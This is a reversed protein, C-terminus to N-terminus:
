GSGAAPAAGALTRRRLVHQHPEIVPVLQRFFNLRDHDLGTPIGLSEVVPNPKVGATWVITSADLETGDSLVVHKDVCSNLFTNMKLPDQASTRGVIAGDKVSWLTPNGTWGTLDKGNFIQTTSDAAGLACLASM